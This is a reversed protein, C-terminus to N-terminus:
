SSQQLLACESMVISGAWFVILVCCLLLLNILKSASQQWICFTIWRQYFYSVQYPPEVLWCQSWKLYVANWSFQNLDSNNQDVNDEYFSWLITQYFFSNSCTTPTDPTSIATTHQHWTLVRLVRWVLSFVADSQLPTTSVPGPSASCIECQQGTSVQSVSLSHLQGDATHGHRPDSWRSEYCIAQVASSQNLHLSIIVLTIISMLRICLVLHPWHDRPSLTLCRTVCQEDRPWWWEVAWMQHLHRLWCCSLLSCKVFCAFDCKRIFVVSEVLVARTDVSASIMIEGPDCQKVDWNIRQDKSLM